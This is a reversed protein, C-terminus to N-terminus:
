WPSPLPTRKRTQAGWADETATAPSNLSHLEVALGRVLPSLSIQYAVTASACRLGEMARGMAKLQKTAVDKATVVISIENQAM